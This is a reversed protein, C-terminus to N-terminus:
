SMQVNKENSAKSQVYIHTTTNNHAKRMEWKKKRYLACFFCNQMTEIFTLIRTDFKSYPYQTAMAHLEDDNLKGCM